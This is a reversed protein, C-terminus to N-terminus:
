GGTEEPPVTTTPATAPPQNGTGSGRADLFPTIPQGYPYLVANGNNAIAEIEKSRLLEPTLSEQVIRNAEADAQAAIVKAEKDTEAVQRRTEAETLAKQQEIKARDAAQSAELKKNIADIIQQAPRIDRIQVVDLILGEKEFTPRLVDNVEKEIAERKTTYGEEATYRSYVNRMQSRVSPRVIIDRVGEMSRVRKFLDSSRDPEVTYRVTVDIGLSGGESALVTVSDDGDRDGETPKATMDSVQLRTSFYAVETWPAVLHFGPLLPDGVKGFTTPIGVDTAGVIKVMSAVPIAAGAVMLLLGLLRVPPKRGGFGGDKGAAALLPKALFFIVMGIVFVVIGFVFAGM